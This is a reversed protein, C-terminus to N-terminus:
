ALVSFYELGCAAIGEGSIGEREVGLLDISTRVYPAFARHTM